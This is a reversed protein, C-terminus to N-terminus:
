PVEFTMTKDSKQYLLKLPVREIDPGIYDKHCVKCVHIMQSKDSKIKHNRIDHIIEHGEAQYKDSFTLTCFKCSYPRQVSHIIKFLELKSPVSCKQVCNECLYPNNSKLPKAPNAAESHQQDPNPTYFELNCKENRIDDNEIDNESDTEDFLAFVEQKVQTEEESSDALM